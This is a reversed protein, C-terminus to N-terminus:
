KYLDNAKDQFYDDKVSNTISIIEDLSSKIEEQTLGDLTMEILSHCIIEFENWEEKADMGIEYNLWETWPRFEIAICKTISNDPLTPDHGYVNAYNTEEGDEWMRDIELIISSEIPCMKNLDLFIEKYDEINEKVDPYLDLLVYEVSLWETNYILNKLKM